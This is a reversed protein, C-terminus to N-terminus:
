QRKTSEKTAGCPEPSYLSIATDTEDITLGRSSKSPNYVDSCIVYVEGAAVSISTPFTFSKEGDSIRWGLLDLPGATTNKITVCGKEWDAKSISFGSCSYANLVSTDWIDVRGTRGGIALRLGDTSAALATVGVPDGALEAVVRGGPLSFVQVTSGRAQAFYRGKAGFEMAPEDDLERSFAFSTVFRASSVDWIATGRGSDTFTYGAVLRGDSSFTVPFYGGVAAIGIRSSSRIAGTKIDWAVLDSELELAGRSLVAFLVTDDQGFAIASPLVAVPPYFIYKQVWTGVTWVRTPDGGFAFLSGDSSFVSLGGGMVGSSWVTRGSAVEIVDDYLALLLGDPSFVMDDFGCSYPFASARSWNSTSILQIDCGDGLSAALYKGDLSFSLGVVGGSLQFTNTLTFTGQGLATFALLVMWLLLGEVSSRVLRRPRM